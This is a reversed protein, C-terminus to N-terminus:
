LCKQVIQFACQMGEKFAIQDDKLSESLDSNKIREIENPLESLYDKIMARLYDIEKKITFNDWRLQNKSPFLACEGVGNYRGEYDFCENQNDSNWINIELLDCSVFDLTCEGFLPSYLKTGKPANKLIEAINNM